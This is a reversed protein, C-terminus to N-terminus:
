ERDDLLLRSVTIISSMMHRQCPPCSILSPFHSRAFHTAYDPLASCIHHFPRPEHTIQDRPPHANRPTRPIGTRACLFARPQLPHSLCPRLYRTHYQIDCHIPRSRHHLPTSPRQKNSQPFTPLGAILLRASHINNICLRQRRLSPTACPLFM